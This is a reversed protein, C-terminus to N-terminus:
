AHRKSELARIVGHIASVLTPNTVVRQDLMEHLRNIALERCREYSDVPWFEPQGFTLVVYAAARIEEVHRRIPLRLTREIRRDLTTARFLTDFWDAAADNAWPEIGWIGVAPSYCLAVAPAVYLDRAIFQAM